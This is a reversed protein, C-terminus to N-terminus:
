SGKLAHFYPSKMIFRKKKRIGLLNYLLLNWCPCNIMSGIKLQDTFGFRGRTYKCHGSHLVCPYLCFYIRKISYQCCVKSLLHYYFLYFSVFWFSSYPREHKIGLTFNWQTHTNRDEWSDNSNLLISRKLEHSGFGFLNISFICFFNISFFVCLICTKLYPFPEDEM